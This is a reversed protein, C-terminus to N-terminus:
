TLLAADKPHKSIEMIEGVVVDKLNELKEIGEIEFSHLMLNDALKEVSM